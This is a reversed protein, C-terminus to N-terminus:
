CPYLLSFRYMFHAGGAEATSDNTMNAIATSEKNQEEREVSPSPSHSKEHMQNPM